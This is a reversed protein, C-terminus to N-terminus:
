QWTGKKSSRFSKTFVPHAAFNRHQNNIPSVRFSYQSLIAQTEEIEAEREMQLLGDMKNTFQTVKHEVM